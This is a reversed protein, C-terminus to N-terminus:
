LVVQLADFRHRKGSSKPLGPTPLPSRQTPMNFGVSGCRKRPGLAEGRLGRPGGQRKKGAPWCCRCPDSEQALTVGRGSRRETKKQAQPATGLSVAAPFGHFKLTGWSLSARRSQPRCDFPPDAPKTKADVESSDCVEAPQCKRLCGPFGSQGSLWFTLFASFALSPVILILCVCFM